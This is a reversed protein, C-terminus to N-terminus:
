IQLGHFRVRLVAAGASLCARFALLADISRTLLDARVSHDITTSRTNINEGIILVTSSAAIAARVARGTDATGAFWDTSVAKVIAASVAHIQLGIPLIATATAIGARITIIAGTALAFRHYIIQRANSFFRSRPAVDASM